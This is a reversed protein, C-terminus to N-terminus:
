INFEKIRADYIKKIDILDQKTYKHQRTENSKKELSLVFSERYRNVLGTRYNAENGGLYRNCYRCQKHCNNEDFIVGSYLEAKKYHGGDWLETDTKNCSICPQEKDRLRIYKQFSKKAEAEYQSLTKLKQRTTKDAEKKRQQTLKNVKPLFCKHYLVKGKDTTTYFEMLCSPCLGYKLREVPKLVGCGKFGYAKNKGNCKKEQIM